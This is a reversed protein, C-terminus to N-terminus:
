SGRQAMVLRIVSLRTGPASQLTNGRLLARNQVQGIDLAVSKTYPAVYNCALERQGAGKEWGAVKIV